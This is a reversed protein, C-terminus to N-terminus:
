HIVTRFFFDSFRMSFLWSGHQFVSIRHQFRIAQSFAMPVSPLARSIVHSNRCQSRPPLLRLGFVGIAPSSHYSCGELAVKEICNEVQMKGCSRFCAGCGSGYLVDDSYILLSLPSSSFLLLPSSSFLSSLLSFLSSLEKERPPPQQNVTTVVACQQSLRECPWPQQPSQLM